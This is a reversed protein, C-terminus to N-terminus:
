TGVTFEPAKIQTCDANEAAVQLRCPEHINSLPVFTWTHLLVMADLNVQTIRLGDYEVDGHGERPRERKTTREGRASHALRPAHTCIYADGIGALGNKYPTLLPATSHVGM